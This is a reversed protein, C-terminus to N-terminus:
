ASAPKEFVGLLSLGFPLRRGRGIMRAEAQMIKTLPRNVVDPSLELHSAQSKSGRVRDALRVAAAVPFLTTNFYSTRVTKFGAGEAASTLRKTRYRRHHQHSVDHSSWLAQYAPVTVVLRAGPAMVRFLEALAVRDDATHELVDLCTVLDFSAEDFPLTEIFSARVTDIGRDRAVQLADEDVDIGEVSGLPALMQMTRGSGCGADLIRLDGGTDPLATSVVDRRGVFWWHRDDISLMRRM